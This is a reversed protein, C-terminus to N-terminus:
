AGGLGEAEDILGKLYRRGEREAIIGHITIQVLELVAAPDVDVPATPMTRQLYRGMECEACECDDAHDEVGNEYVAIDGGDDERGLYYAKWWCESTGRGARCCSCPTPMASEDIM